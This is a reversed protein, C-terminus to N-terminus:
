RGGAAPQVVIAGPRTIRAAGLRRTVSPTQRITAAEELARRAADQNGAAKQADGDLSLGFVKLAPVGRLQGALHTARNANAGVLLNAEGLQSTEQATLAPTPAREFVRAEGSLAATTAALRQAGPSRAASPSAKEAERLAGAALGPWNMANLADAALTWQASVPLDPSTRAVSARAAAIVAASASADGAALSRLRQGEAGDLLVEIGGAVDQVMQMQESRVLALNPVRVTVRTDPAVDSKLVFHYEAAKAGIGLAMFMDTTSQAPLEKPTDDPWVFLAPDSIEALTFHLSAGGANVLRARQRGLASALDIVAQGNEARFDPTELKPELTHNLVYEKLAATVVIVSDRDARDPKVIDIHNAEIAPPSGECFRTASSWPVIMVGHTPLKEYACRIHPRRAIPISNWEDSLTKLLDNGDAPTMQALAPNNAVYKAVRTIDSGEQPTALFVIVPVRDRVEPHTLLERLAVLGGMSHAVIAIQQYNLIGEADLRLHLRNAAERIDFSGAQFMNSRFGFAYMDARGAVGPVSNVLDFFRAKNANTWTGITDGFIGHIFVVALRSQPTQRVVWQPETANSTADTANGTAGNKPGCACLILAALVWVVRSLRWCARIAATESLVMSGM